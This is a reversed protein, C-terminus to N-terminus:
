ISREEGLGERALFTEVQIGIRLMCEATRLRVRRGEATGAERCSWLGGWGWSQNGQLASRWAEGSKRTEAM